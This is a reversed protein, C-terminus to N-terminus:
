RNVLSELTCYHDSIGLGMGRVTKVDQVYKLMDRKVLVLDMMSTVEMGAQGKTLRTYKRINKPMFHKNGVRLGKETFIDVM